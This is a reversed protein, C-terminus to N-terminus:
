PTVSFVTGGNAKGGSSATGYLVGNVGLLRAQPYAGDLNGKFDHLLHEKGSLTVSFVTGCGPESPLYCSSEGGAYTTGYLVGGVDVLSAEPWYGSPPGKQFNYIVREKGSTTITFVTGCGLYLTGGDSLCGTPGGFLTDGYLTGHVNVMGEPWWGDKSGNFSGKFDYLLVKKGATSVGFVVGCPGELTGPPCNLEGGGTATGYLNGKLWVLSNPNAGSEGGPFSYIIKEDGHTAIQFLTGNGSTGGGSATGYLTANAQILSTPSNSDSGGGFSRLVQEKGATTMSFFAGDNYEGGSITTGYLTGSVDVLTTNPDAGDPKGRFSYLVMQKGTTTISFVVGAKHAGGKATTGYLTNGVRVLGADPYRGDTGNFFFLSKYATVATYARSPAQQVLGAPLVNPISSQTCAAMAVSLILASWIAKVTRQVDSLCPGHEGDYIPPSGLIEAITAAHSAAPLAALFGFVAAPIAFRKFM